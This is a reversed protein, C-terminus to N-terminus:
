LSKKERLSKQKMYFQRENLPLKEISYRLMTRPMKWAFKRLFRHLPELKRKGMERLMWGTAKHMLDEKDGLLLESLALIDKFDKNRIFHLTAVVAIRRKWLDKSKALRYLENRSRTELYPGVIYHASSDVLDWNNIFKTNKLYAKFIQTKMEDDGRRYLDVMFILALLREEHWPSKLLALSDKLGTGRHRKAISQTEPVSLGLFKDGEGYGGPGTQFFKSLLLARSPKELARIDKRIQALM